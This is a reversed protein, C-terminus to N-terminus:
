LCRKAKCETAAPLRNGKGGSATSLRDSGRDEVLQLLRSIWISKEEGCAGAKKLVIFDRARDATAIQEAKM